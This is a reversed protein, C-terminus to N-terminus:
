AAAAVFAASGSREVRYGTDALPVYRQLPHWDGGPGGARLLRAFRFAYRNCAPTGGNWSEGIAQPTWAGHSGPLKVPPSVPQGDVWVRWWSPRHAMELVALRHAVGVTISSAVQVYRPVDGPAKVEYYINSSGPETFASLGVQLWADTGDPGEGVGGVGVWAAVHGNEVAPVELPTVIAAVGAATDRAQWGAYSYPAVGCGSAEAHTAPAGALFAATLAVASAALILLRRRTM